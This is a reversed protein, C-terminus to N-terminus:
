EMGSLIEEIRHNTQKITEFLQTTVEGLHVCQYSIERNPKDSMEGEGHRIEIGMLESVGKSLQDDLTLTTAILTLLRSDTVQSRLMEIDNTSTSMSKVVRTIEDLYTRSRSDAWAIGDNSCLKVLDRLKTEVYHTSSIISKLRESILNLYQARVSILREIQREKQQYEFQLKTNKTSFYGQIVSGLVGAVLAISGGIIIGLIVDSV